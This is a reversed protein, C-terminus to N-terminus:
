KTVYHNTSPIETNFQVVKIRSWMHVYLIWQKARTLGHPQKKQVGRVQFSASIQKHSYKIIYKNTTKLQMRQLTESM